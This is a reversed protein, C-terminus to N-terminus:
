KGTVAKISDLMSVSEVPIALSTGTYVKGYGQATVTWEAAVEATNDHNSRVLVVDHDNSEWVPYPRLHKLDITIEIANDLNQWKIPYDRSRLSELESPDVGSVLFPDSQPPVVPPFLKSRRFNRPNRWPLGFAGDITIIIQVDNLFVESTNNVRFKLGPWANSALYHECEPWTERIEREWRVIRQELQAPSKPQPPQRGQYFASSIASAALTGALPNDRHGSGRFQERAKGAADQLHWDRIDESGTFYRAAGLVELNVSIPMPGPDIDLYQKRVQSMPPQDLIHAVRELHFLEVKVDGGLGRLAEREGLRLEQNTVFAVGHPNHKGAAALDDKLKTQIAGLPQQGRPFYVAMIWPQGGKMCMADRGGDKGGLPHSPDIDEFGEHVLIQAALRESPAQGQTWELLRHWTEDFRTMCEEYAKYADNGIVTASMLLLDM